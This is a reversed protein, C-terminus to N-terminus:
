GKKRSEEQIDLQFFLAWYYIEEPCLGNLNMTLLGTIDNGSFSIYYKNLFCDPSIELEIKGILFKM